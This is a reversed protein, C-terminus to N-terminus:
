ELQFVRAATNSRCHLSELSSLIARKKLDNPFRVVKSPNMSVIQVAAVKLSDNQAILAARDLRFDFAVVYSGATDKSVRRVNM